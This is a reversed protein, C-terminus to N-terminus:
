RVNSIMDQLLPLDKESKRLDKQLFYNLMQVKKLQKQRITFMKMTTERAMQVYDLSGAAVHSWLMKARRDLQRVSRELSSTKEIVRAINKQICPSTCMSMAIDLQM